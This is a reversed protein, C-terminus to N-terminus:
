NNYVSKSVFTTSAAAFLMTYDNYFKVDNVSKVTSITNSGKMIGTKLLIGSM